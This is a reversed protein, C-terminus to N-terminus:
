QNLYHAQGHPYELYDASNELESQLDDSSFSQSNASYQEIDIPFSVGEELGQSSHQLVTGYPPFNKLSSVKAFSHLISNECKQNM